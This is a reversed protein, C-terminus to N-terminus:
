IIEMNKPQTYHLSCDKVASIEDTKGLETCVVLGCSGCGTQLRALFIEPVMGLASSLSYAHHRHPHHASAWASQVPNPPSLRPILFRKPCVCRTDSKGRDVWIGICRQNRRRLNWGRGGCRRCPDRAAGLISQVSQVM